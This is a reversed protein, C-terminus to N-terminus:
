GGKLKEGVFIWVQENWPVEELSWNTTTHISIFEDTWDQAMKWKALSGCDAVAAMIVTNKNEHAKEIEVVMQYYTELYDSMKIGNYCGDKGVHHSYAIVFNRKSM